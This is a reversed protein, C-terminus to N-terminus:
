AAPLPDYSGSEPAPTVLLDCSGQDIMQETVSGLLFEVFRSKGHRGLVILDANLQKAQASIVAVPMGHHIARSILQKRPGLSDIFHNLETRAAERAQIRYSHIVDVSVGTEVMIGEEPVRFAHLFIFHASPAIALAWRAAERSEDSFDIGVLVSKYASKPESNVLLVPRDALRILEDNSHRRFLDAFFQKGRAAVVILGARIEGAREVIAEPPSGTRFSHVCTPGVAQRLLPPQAEQNELLAIGEGERAKVATSSIALSRLGMRTNQVTMLELTEAKLEVSLMAARTEARRADESYDTAVLIKRIRDVFDETHSM